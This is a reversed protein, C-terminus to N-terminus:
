LLRFTVDYINIETIDFKISEKYTEVIIKFKYTEETVRGNNSKVPTNDFDILEYSREKNRYPILHKQKFTLSIFNELYGLDILM